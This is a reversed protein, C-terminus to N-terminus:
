TSGGRTPPSRPLASPSPAREPAEGEKKVQWRDLRTTNHVTEVHLSFIAQLDTSFGCRCFFTPTRGKESHVTDGIERAEAELAKALLRSIAKSRNLDGRRDDIAALIRVDLTIGIAKVTM